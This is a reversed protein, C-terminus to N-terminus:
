MPYGWSHRSHSRYTHEPGDSGANAAGCGAATGAEALPIRTPADPATPVGDVKPAQAHRLRSNEPPGSAPFRRRRNSSPITDLVRRFARHQAFSSPLDKPAAKHSSAEFQRFSSRDFAATTFTETLLRPM